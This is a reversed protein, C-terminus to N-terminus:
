DTGTKEGVEVVGAEFMEVEAMVGKGTQHKGGEGVEVVFWCSEEEVKVVVLCVKVAYWCGEEEVGVVDLGVMVIKWHGLVCELGFTGWCVWPYTRERCEFETVVVGEEEVVVVGWEEQGEEEM